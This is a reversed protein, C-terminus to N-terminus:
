PFSPSLCSIGEFVGLIQLDRPAHPSTINPSGVIHETGLGQSCHHLSGLHFDLSRFVASLPHFGEQHSKSRTVKKLYVPVNHRSQFVHLM